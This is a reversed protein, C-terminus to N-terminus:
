KGLLANLRAREVQVNYGAAAARDLAEAAFTLVERKHQDRFGREAVSIIQRAENLDAEPNLSGDVKVEVQKM